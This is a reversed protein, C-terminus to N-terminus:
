GECDAQQPASATPPASTHQSPAAALEHLLGLCVLLLLVGGIRRLARQLLAAPCVPERLSPRTATM